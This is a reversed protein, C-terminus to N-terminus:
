LSWCCICMDNRAFYISKRRQLKQKVDNHFCLTWETCTARHIELFYQRSKFMFMSQITKVNLMYDHPTSEFVISRFWVQCRHSPHLRIKITCKRLHFLQAILLIHPQNIDCKTCPQIRVAVRNRHCENRHILAYLSTIWIVLCAVMQWLVNAYSNLFRHM